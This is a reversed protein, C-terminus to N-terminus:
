VFDDSRAHQKDSVLIALELASASSQHAMCRIPCAGPLRCLGLWKSFGDYPLSRANRDPPKEDVRPAGWHSLKELVPLGHLASLLFCSPQVISFIADFNKFIFVAFTAKPDDPFFREILAALVQLLNRERNASPDTNCVSSSLLRRFLSQKVVIQLFDLFLSINCIAGCNAIQSTLCETFHGSLSNM